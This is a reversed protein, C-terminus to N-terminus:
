PAPTISPLGYMGPNLVEGLLNKVFSFIQERFILALGLAIAVLVVIEVTNIGKEDSVLKRLMIKM